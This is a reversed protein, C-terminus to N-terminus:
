FFCGTAKMVEAKIFELQKTTKNTELNELQNSMRHEPPANPKTPAM